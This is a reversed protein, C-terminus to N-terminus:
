PAPIGPPIDLDSRLRQVLPQLDRVAVSERRPVDFDGNAVTIAAGGPGVAETQFGGRLRGASLAEVTVEGSTLLYVTVDDANENDWHFNLMFVGIACAGAAEEDCGADIPYTGPEAVGNLALLFVDARPEGRAVSAAVNPVSGPVDLAAAWTGHEPRGVGDLNVDGRAEYAGGDSGTYTFVVSPVDELPDAPSDGCATLLAATVALLTHRFPRGPSLTM